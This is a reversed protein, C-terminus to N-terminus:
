CFIGQPFNSLFRLVSSVHLVSMVYASVDCRTVVLVVRGTALGPLMGVFPDRLQSGQPTRFGLGYATCNFLPVVLLASRREAMAHQSTSERPLYGHSSLMSGDESSVGFDRDLVQYLVGSCTRSTRPMRRWWMRCSTWALTIGRAKKEVVPVVRLSGSVRPGFMGFM